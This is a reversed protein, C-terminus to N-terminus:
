VVNKDKKSNVAIIEDLKEDQTKVADYMRSSNAKFWDRLVINIIEEASKGPAMLEIVQLEKESLQINM